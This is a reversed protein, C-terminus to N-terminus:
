GCNIYAGAQQLRVLFGTGSGIDMVKKGKINMLLSILEDPKQWL